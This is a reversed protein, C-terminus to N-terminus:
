RKLMWKLVLIIRRDVDPDELIYRGALKGAFHQICKTYRGHPNSAGLM